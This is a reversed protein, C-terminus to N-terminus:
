ADYSDEDDTELEGTFRERVRENRVYRRLRDKFDDSQGALWDLYGVPVAEVFEDAYKGYPMVARDFREAEEDTMPGAPDPVSPLQKAAHDRVIKWFHQPDGAISESLLEIAAEAAQRSECRAKLKVQDIGHPAPM